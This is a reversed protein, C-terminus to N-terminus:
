NHKWEKCALSNLALELSATHNSCHMPGSICPNKEWYICYLATFTNEEKHNEHYCKRKERKNEKSFVAYLVYLM